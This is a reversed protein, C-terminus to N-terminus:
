SAVAAPEADPVVAASRALLVYGPVVCAFVIGAVLWAAPIGQGRALLGLCLLGTAGGLTMFASRVSLVTARRDAGVHDNIWASALPDSVGTAIEYVLLGAVVPGVRLAIAAAGIAVARVAISAIVARERGVHRLLRPVLATGSVFALSLLAWTWGIFPLGHGGLRLVHTQWLMNIPMTAFALGFALLCLVLLAPTARVMDVADRATRGLSRHVGRWPRRVGEPEYMTVAALAGTAMFGVTGILWTLTFSHAAVYGSVIGGGTMGVGMMMQARALLRDPPRTDGDARAGDIAWADLAGSALTTGLADVTEAVLCDGFSQATAYMGYAVARVICSALFSRKRGFVDALAGTPVECLFVVVLYVALVVNMRFLDLGRSQLFLPYIPAISWASLSYASFLLYYTRETRTM